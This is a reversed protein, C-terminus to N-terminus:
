GTIGYKSKIQNTLSGSFKVSSYTYKAECYIENDSAMRNCVQVDNGWFDENELCSEMLFELESIPLSDVSLSLAEASKDLYSFCSDMVKSSARLDLIAGCGTLCFTTIVILITRIKLM